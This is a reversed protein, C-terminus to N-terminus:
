SGSFLEEFKLRRLANAYMAESLPFHINNFADWRPILRYKKTISEPLNEPLEKPSLQQLLAFTLKALARGNLGRAKLKETSPYVPDLFKKSGAIEPTYLEIDPHSIQARQMFFMVKGFVIYRSGPDLLKQVWHIGQFWTLEIEGTDDRLYAILRKNRNEGLIEFHILQGVVQAYETNPDLSAIKDIRTKDIHRFPFYELVDKFTFIGAEKKLLDAKLPGVGKLYEVPSSLINNVPSIIFTKVFINRKFPVQM